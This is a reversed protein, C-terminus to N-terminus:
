ALKRGTTTSVLGGHKVGKTSILQDALRRIDRSRGKLVINELCNRADLHVHTNCIVTAHAHHQLEQLADVLDRRHHDYVITVAGVVEADAADWEEDVIADRVLDRIAESRTAYGKRRILRDFRRLLDPEMSVGFRKVLQM